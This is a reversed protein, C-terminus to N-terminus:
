IIGKGKEIYLTACKNALKRVRQIYRVRESVSIAKRSDLLNFIHSLKLIYDYAPYILEKELIKEAEKEFKDFIVFLMDVDAIEFSYTSYEREREKHIDGYKVNKN